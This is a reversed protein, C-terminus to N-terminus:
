YYYFFFLFSVLAPWPVLNAQAGRIPKGNIRPPHHNNNAHNHHHDIAALLGNAQHHLKPDVRDSWSLGKEVLFFSFASDRHPSLWERRHWEVDDYEVLVQLM